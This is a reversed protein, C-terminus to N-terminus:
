LMHLRLVKGVLFEFTLTGQLEAKGKARAIIKFNTQGNLFCWAAVIRQPFLMDEPPPPTPSRWSCAHVKEQGCFDNTLRHTYHICMVFHNWCQLGQEFLDSRQGPFIYKSVCFESVMIVKLTSDKFNCASGGILGAMSPLTGPLDKPSHLGTTWGNIFANWSPREPIPTCRPQLTGSLAKKHSLKSSANEVQFVVLFQLSSPWFLLGSLDSFNKGGLFHSDITFFPVHTKM